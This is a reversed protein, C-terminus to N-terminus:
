TGLTKLFLSPKLFYAMRSALQYSALLFHKIILSRRLFSCYCFCHCCKPVGAGRSHARMKDGKRKLQTDYTAMFNLYSRRISAFIARTCTRRRSRTETCFRRQYPNIPITLFTAHVTLPQPIASRQRPSLRYPLPPPVKLNM